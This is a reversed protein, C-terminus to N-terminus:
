VPAGDRRVIRFVCAADGAAACATELVRWEPSVIQQFIREFTAAFYFCVPASTRLGRCLPSGQLRITPERGLEYAFAGSGVFTWAHRGIAVLLIRLAVRPPLVPLVRQIPRPIRHRLLYDGTRRGADSAVREARSPGLGLWVARYLAAVAREDVMEAPPDALLASLGATGFIQACVDIGELSELAEGMRIIANPGVRGVTQDMTGAARIDTFANM